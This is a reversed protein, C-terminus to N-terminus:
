AHRLRDLRAANPCFEPYAKTATDAWLERACRARQTCRLCAEELERMAEPDRRRVANPDLNLSRMLNVITGVKAAAEPEPAPGAANAELMTAMMEEDVDKLERATKLLCCWESMSAVIGFPDFPDPKDASDSM